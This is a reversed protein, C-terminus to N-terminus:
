LAKRAANIAGCIETAKETNFRYEIQGTWDDHFLGADFAAVLVTQKEISWTIGGFRADDFPVDIMPRDGNFAAVRKGTVAISAIMGVKRIGSYSGPRHFNRYTVSGKLGEDSVILGEAAFELSRSAPLRGAGFLRYFLSKKVTM